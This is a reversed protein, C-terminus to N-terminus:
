LAREKEEGAEKNEDELQDEEPAAEIDAGRKTQLQAEETREQEKAAELSWRQEMGLQDGVLQNIYRACDTLEDSSINGSKGKSFDSQLEISMGGGIWVCHTKFFKTAYIPKRISIVAYVM